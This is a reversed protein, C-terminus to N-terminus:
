AEDAARRYLEHVLNMMDSGYFVLLKVNDKNPHHTISTNAVSVSDYLNTSFFAVAGSIEKYPFDVPNQFRDINIAEKLRNKYYLQQKIANLSEAKRAQDKVSDNVADQLRPKPVNGSFQAKTEFIALTDDSSIEGDKFYKFGIIDCGKSSENGITKSGYRTRPIWYDLVFELYDAVLIESFDGARISPGPASSIDPFKIENLFQARTFNYGSRFFDIEDDLCYHERFHKAWLSLIEENNEHKFEFIEIREGEPTFLDNDTKLCWNVHGPKTSIM